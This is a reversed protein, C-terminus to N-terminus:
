RSRSPSTGKDSRISPQSHALPLRLKSAREQRDAQRFEREKLEFKSLEDEIARMFHERPSRAMRTVRYM